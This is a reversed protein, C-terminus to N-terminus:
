LLETQGAIPFFYDGNEDPQAPASCDFSVLADVNALSRNSNFADEWTILRGSKAALRGLIGIMTASAARETENHPEDNRIAAFLADHEAQYENRFPPGTYEWIMNRARPNHGRYIRPDRIGEGFIASGTTGHVTAQFSNWTGRMFRGQAHLRTGDPFTYEVYYQDFLEDQERRLQRACQGQASVPFAGKAWCCVDLNHILWDVAPSGSTWTFGNFNRIQHALLSENEQRPRRGSAGGTRYTWCTMVDGILGAHIQEIAEQMSRKHRQMLGSVIKLNKAKAVENAQLVRRVGPPDVAFSKEAFIHVGKEIAYELEMPRFVPPTALLIVGGAGVADIAKKYGDFGGFQRDPPVDVDGAFREINGSRLIPPIRAPFLDAMAVVKKPGETQLADFLAGAGRSGCGVLGINLVNSEAAHVHPASVVSTAVSTALVAGVAGAAGLSSQKLFDRRGNRHGKEPQAQETQAQGSQVQM